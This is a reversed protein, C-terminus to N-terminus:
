LHLTFGTAFNVSHKRSTKQIPQNWSVTVPDTGTACGGFIETMGNTFSVTM